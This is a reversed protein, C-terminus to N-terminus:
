NARLCAYVCLSGGGGRELSQYKARGSSLRRRETALNDITRQIKALKSGNTINLPTLYYNIIPSIFVKIANSRGILTLPVRKIRMAAKVVKRYVKEIATEEGEEDMSIKHGLFEFTKNIRSEKFGIEKLVEMEDETLQRNISFNSKELSLEM